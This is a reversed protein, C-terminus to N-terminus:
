KGSNVSMNEPTFEAVFYPYYDDTNGTGVALITKGTNIDILELVDNTEYTDDDRMKGVVEQGIFMNSVLEESEKIESMCSRYGDEPNEVATYTKGDLVFNIVECDEFSEGYTQISKNSMDVGSLIHKGILDQLEMENEKRNDKEAGAEFTRGPPQSKLLPVDRSITGQWTCYGTAYIFRSYALILVEDIREVLCRGRLYRFVRDFM